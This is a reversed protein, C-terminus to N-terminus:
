SGALILSSSVRLSLSPHYSMRWLQVLTTLLRVVTERGEGGSGERRRM